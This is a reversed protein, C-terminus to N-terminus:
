DNHIEFSGDSNFTCSQNKVGKKMKTTCSINIEPDFEDLAKIAEELRDYYFNISDILLNYEHMARKLESTDVNIEVTANNSKNKM